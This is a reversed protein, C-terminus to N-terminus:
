RLVTITLAVNSEADVLWAGVGEAVEGYMFSELYGYAMSQRM